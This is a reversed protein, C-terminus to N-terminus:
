NKVLPNAAGHLRGEGTTVPPPRLCAALWGTRQTLDWYNRLYRPSHWLPLALMHHHRAAQSHRCHEKMQLPRGEPCYYAVIHRHAPLTAAATRHDAGARVAGSDVVRRGKDRARLPPRVRTAKAILLEFTLVVQSVVLPEVRTLPRVVTLVTTSAKGLLTVAFVM